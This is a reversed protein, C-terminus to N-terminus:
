YLNLRLSKQCIEWDCKKTVMKKTVFIKEIMLKTQKMQKM